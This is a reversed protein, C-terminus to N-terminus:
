TFIQNLVNIPTGFWPGVFILGRKYNWCISSDELRNGLNKRSGKLFLNQIGSKSFVKALLLLTKSSPNISLRLGALVDLENIAVRRHDHHHEMMWMMSISSNQVIFYLTTSIYFTSSAKKQSSHTHEDYQVYCTYISYQISCSSVISFITHSLLSM